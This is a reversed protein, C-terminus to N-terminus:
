LGRFLTENEILPRTTDDAAERAARIREARDPEALLVSVQARKFLAMPWGPHSPAVQDLADRAEGFRQEALYCVGLELFHAFGEPRVDLAREFAGIAALTQGVAMSVEALEVLLAEPKPSLDIARGYLASAEEFRGQDRRIRALAELSPLRRPMQHLVTELLTSAEEVEGVRQLHLALYHRVDVSSPDIRRAREFFELAKGGEGVLSHCVALRLHVMLNGPDEAALAEFVPIAERYRQHIFLGSGRDLDAFLHVMDKPDPADERFPPSEPGALYGLSALRQIAEEDLSPGSNPTPQRPYARLDSLLQRDASWHEALDHSEQPDDLLDYVELGKARIVKWRDRVGMTQGQWGYQLAPKMAEGLVTEDSGELLSGEVELGAWRAVTHFVRRTSVAGEFRGPEVDSGALILPVRMVGQYLLHGHFTEGHEGLSEGHDGVVLIRPDKEREEFTALLRGIEHDMAAVEGLYAEGEFRTRFPEPPEYPEHPDFYHVWLFLPQTEQGELWAIARDTTEAATREVGTGLDDDYHGFGQALGFSRSLPFGSIFAATEYGAEELGQALLPHEEGLRRGNEHIGHEAPYLGTFMSAHAPLTMPAPTIAMSFIQGRAALEDLHPTTDRGSVFGLADFRTTDLPILLISPRLDKVDSRPGTEQPSACALTLFVSLLGLCRM